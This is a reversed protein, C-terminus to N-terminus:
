DNIATIKIAQSAGVGSFWVEGDGISVGQWNAFLTAYTQRALAEKVKATVIKDYDAVFHDADNLKIAKGNIRARFPYSVMAAVGKRDDAAVAKKLADFFAVYPAHGGFLTDLTGNMDAATQAGAAPAGAITAMVALAVM